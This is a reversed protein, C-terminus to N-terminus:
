TADSQKLHMQCDSWSIDRSVGRLMTDDSEIEVEAETDVEMAVGIGDLEEVTEEVDSAIVIPDDEAGIWAEMIKMLEKQQVSDEYVISEEVAPIKKGMKACMTTLASSLSCLENCHENSNKKHKESLSASGIDNNMDAIAAISLIGARQWCRKFSDNSCYKDTSSCWISDLIIMADLLDATPCIM